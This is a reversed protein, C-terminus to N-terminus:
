KQWYKKADYKNNVVADEVKCYWLNGTTKIRNTPIYCEALDRRPRKHWSNNYVEIVTENEILVLRYCGQMISKVEPDSNYREERAGVIVCAKYFNNDHDFTGYMRRALIHACEHAITNKVNEASASLVYHKSLEIYEKIQGRNDNYTARGCSRKRNNFGKFITGPIFKNIMEEALSQATNLDM